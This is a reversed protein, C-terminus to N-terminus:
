EFSLTLLRSSAISSALVSFITYIASVIYNVPKLMFCRRATVDGSEVKKLLVEKFKTVVVGLVVM